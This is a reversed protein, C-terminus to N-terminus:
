IKQMRLTKYRDDMTDLLEKLQDAEKAGAMGSSVRRLIKRVDPRNKTRKMKAFTERIPIYYRSNEPIVTICVTHTSKPSKELFRYFSLVTVHESDDDKFVGADTMGDVLGKVTPESNSPDSRAATPYGIGIMLQVPQAYHSIKQARAQIAGTERLIKVRKAKEYHHLRSNSTVWQERPITFMITEYGYM